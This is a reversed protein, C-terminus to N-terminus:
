MLGEEVMYDMIANWINEGEAGNNLVDVCNNGNRELEEM